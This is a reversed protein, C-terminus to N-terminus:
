KSIYNVRQIKWEKILVHANHTEVHIDHRRCWDKRKHARVWVTERWMCAPNIKAWPLGDSVAHRSGSSVTSIRVRMLYIMRRRKYAAGAIDRCTIKKLDRRLLGGDKVKVFGRWFGFYQITVISGTKACVACILFL